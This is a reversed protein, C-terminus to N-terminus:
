QADCAALLAAKRADTAPLWREDVLQRCQAPALSLFAWAAEQPRFPTLDPACSQRWLEGIADAAERRAPSAFVSPM